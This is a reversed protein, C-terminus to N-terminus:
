SGMRKFTEKDQAAETSRKGGDSQEASKYAIISGTYGTCIRKHHWINKRGRINM